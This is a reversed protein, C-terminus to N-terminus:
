VGHFERGCKVERVYGARIVFDGFREGRDKAYHHFLPRLVVM